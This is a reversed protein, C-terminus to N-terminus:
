MEIFGNPGLKTFYSTYYFSYEVLICVWESSGGRMPRSGQPMSRSGWHSWNCVNQYGFLGTSGTRVRVPGNRALPIYNVNPVKM